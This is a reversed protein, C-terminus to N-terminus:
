PHPLPEAVAMRRLKAVSIKHNVAAVVSGGGPVPWQLLASRDDVSGASVTPEGRAPLPGSVKITLGFAETWFYPAPTYAAAVDGHLLTAAAVGAQDIASSWHPTRRPGGAGPFAAVDGAAVIDPRVRGRDDVAIGGAGAIGSGELWEINPRCGVATVVLDATLERGDALRVGTLSRAGLLQVGGPSVLIRVGHDHAAAAVLDALFPGLSTVLPPERDVVTVELGLGRCASAIELGLFGAGVVVVRPRRALADRLAVADDLNRLVVEGSHGLTRARAGTAIVLRDYPVQEGGDVLVRRNTVDLGAARVGLRIDIDDGFAPLLVSESAEAGSLVGKSLPPRTYPGHPEDGLLTIPGDHGLRRLAGVATVAALSAGVVVVRPGTM